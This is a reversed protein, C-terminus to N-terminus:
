LLPTLQLKTFRFDFPGTASSSVTVDCTFTVTEPASSAVQWYNAVLLWSNLPRTQGTTLSIGQIGCLVGTVFNQTGSVYYNVSVLYRTVSRDYTVSQSFRWEGGPQITAGNCSGAFGFCDASSSFVSPSAATTTVDAWPALGASFDSNVLYNTPLTGAGNVAMTFQSIAGYGGGLSRFTCQIITKPGYATFTLAYSAAASSRTLDRYAGGVTCVGWGNSITLSALFGVTYSTGELTDLVQSLFVDGNNMNFAACTSGVSASGSGCSSSAVITAGNGSVASTQWSTLGNSFDGNLITATPGSASSTTTSSSIPEVSSSSTISFSSTTEVSSSSTISFSSTTEVSSSSTISFSSTTEVSSSTSPQIDVSSTTTSMSDVSSSSSQVSTTSETVTSGTVTPTSATSFTASTSTETTLSSGITASATTLTSYSTSTSTQSETSSLTTSSTPSAASTSSQIITSSETNSGTMSTSVQIATESITSTSIAGYISSLSSSSSSVKKGCPKALAGASLVSAWLLFRTHHMM